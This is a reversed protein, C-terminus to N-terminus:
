DGSVYVGLVEEIIGAFSMAQCEPSGEPLIGTCPSFCNHEDVWDNRLCDAITEHLTHFCENNAETDTSLIVDCGHADFCRSREWYAEVYCDQGCANIECTCYNNDEPCSASSGCADHCDDISEFAEFYCTRAKEIDCSGFVIDGESVKARTNYFLHGYDFIDWGFASAEIGAHAKVGAWLEWTFPDAVENYYAGDQGVHQEPNESDAGGDAKYLLEAFPGVDVYPGAIDYVMVSAKLRAAGALKGQLRWSGGTTFPLAEVNFGGSNWESWQPSAARQYTVVMRFDADAKLGGTVKGWGIQSLAEADVVISVQPTVVLPVTGVMLTFSKSVLPFEYEGELQLSYFVFELLMSAEFHAAGEFSLYHVGSFFSKVYEFSFLPAFRVYGESIMGRALREHEGEGERKEFLVTGGLDWDVWPSADCAPCASDAKGGKGVMPLDVTFEAEDFLDELTARSTVITIQGGDSSVSEVMRLFGIGTTGVLVAGVELDLLDENGAVDFVLSDAGVIAAASRVEDFVVAAESAQATGTVMPEAPVGGAADGSAIIDEAPEGLDGSPNSSSSSCGSLMFLGTISVILVFSPLTRRIM